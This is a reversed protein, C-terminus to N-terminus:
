DICIEDISLTLFEELTSLDKKIPDSLDGMIPNIIKNVHEPAQASFNGSFNAGSIENIKNM